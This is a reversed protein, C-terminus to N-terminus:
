PCTRQLARAAQAIIRMGESECCGIYIDGAPIEEDKRLECETKEVLEVIESARKRLLLGEETLTDKASASIMAVPVASTCYARIGTSRCM